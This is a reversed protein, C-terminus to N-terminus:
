GSDGGASRGGAEALPATPLLPGHGEPWKLLGLDPLQRSQISGGSGNEVM